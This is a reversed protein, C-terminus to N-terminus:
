SSRLRLLGLGLLMLYLSSPLPAPASPTSVALFSDNVDTATLAVEHFKLLGVQGQFTGYSNLDGSNAGGVVGDNSALSSTGGGAWDTLDAGSTASDVFTGNVYLSTTDTALDVVGVIQVFDAIDAPALTATANLLHSGGVNSKVRFLLEDNNLTLSLGNSGGTEFLVQQGSALDDPKVWLEFSADTKTADGTPLFQMSTGFATDTADFSYSADIGGYTPSPDVANYTTGTLGWDLVLAPDGEFTANVGGDPDAAADWLVDASVVAAMSSSMSFLLIVAFTFKKLMAYLGGLSNKNEVLELM